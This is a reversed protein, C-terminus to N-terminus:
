PFAVRKLCGHVTLRGTIPTLMSRSGRVLVKAFVTLGENKVTLHCRSARRSGRVLVKTFTMKLSRVSGNTLGFM